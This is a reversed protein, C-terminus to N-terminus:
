VQFSCIAYFHIPTDNNQLPTHTKQQDTPTDANTRTQM